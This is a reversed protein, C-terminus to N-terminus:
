FVIGISIDLVQFRVSNWNHVDPANSCGNTRESLWKSVPIINATKKM